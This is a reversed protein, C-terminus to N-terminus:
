LSLIFVNWNNDNHLRYTEAFKTYIPIYLTFALTTKKHIHLYLVKKKKYFTRNNSLRVAVLFYNVRMVSMNSIVYVIRIM